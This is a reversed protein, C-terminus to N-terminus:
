TVGTMVARYEVREAEAGALPAFALCVLPILFFRM